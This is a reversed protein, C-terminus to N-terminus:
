KNAGGSGSGSGGGSSTGGDTGAPGDGSRGGGSTGGEGSTTGGSKSGTDGNGNSGAAGGIGGTGSSGAADSSAAADSSSSLSESRGDSNSDGGHLLDHRTGRPTVLEQREEPVDIARFRLIEPGPRRIARQQVPTAAINDREVPPATLRMKLNTSGIRERPREVERLSATSGEVSPQTAGLRPRAKTTQGSATVTGTTELAGAKRANPDPSSPGRAVAKWPLPERRTSLEGPQPAGQNAHSARPEPSSPQSTQATQVEPLRRRSAEDPWPSERQAGAEPAAISPPPDVWPRKTQAVAISLAGAMAVLGAMTLARRRPLLM